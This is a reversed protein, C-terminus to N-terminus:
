TISGFEIMVPKGRLSSLAVEGGELTPLAFDPAPDGAKVVEKQFFAREKWTMVWDIYNYPRGLFETKKSVIDVM